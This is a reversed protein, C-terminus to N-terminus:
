EVLCELQSEVEETGYLYRAFDAMEKRWNRGICFSHCPINDGEDWPAPIASRHVVDLLNM